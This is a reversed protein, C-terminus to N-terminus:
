FCTPLVIQFSKKHKLIKLVDEINPVTNIKAIVNFSGIANIIVPPLPTPLTHLQKVTRRIAGDGGSIILYDYIEINEVTHLDALEIFTINLPNFQIKKGISLINM